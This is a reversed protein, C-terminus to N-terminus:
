PWKPPSPPAPRPAPLTPPSRNAGGRRQLSSFEGRSASGPGPPAARNKKHNPVRPAAASPRPHLRARLEQLLPQPPPPPSRQSTFDQAPRSQQKHRPLACFTHWQVINSSCWANSCSPVQTLAAPKSRSPLPGTGAAPLSLNPAPRDGRRAAPRPGGVIKRPDPPRVSASPASRQSRLEEGPGEQTGRARRKGEGELFM